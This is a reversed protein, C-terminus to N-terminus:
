DLKIYKKRFNVKPFMKSMQTYTSEFDFDRYLIQFGNYADEIKLDTNSKARNLKLLLYKYSLYLAINAPYQNKGGWLQAVFRECNILESLTKHSFKKIDTMSHRRKRYQILQDPIYAFSSSMTYLTAIFVKDEGYDYFVKINKYVKKVLATKVVFRWISVPNFFFPYNFDLFNEYEYSIGVHHKKKLKRFKYNQSIYSYECFVFDYKKNKIKLKLIDITNAYMLDDSDFQICYEGSAYKIGKRRSRCLGINKKNKLIIIKKQAHKLKFSSMISLTDDSSADDILILELDDHIELNLSDLTDKLFPSGNFCPIIITILIEEQIKKLM